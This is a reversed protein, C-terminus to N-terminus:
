KEKITIRSQVPVAAELTKFFEMRAPKLFNNPIILKGTKDNEVEAFWGTDGWVIYVIYTRGRDCDSCDVSASGFLRDGPKLLPNVLSTEFLSQPGSEEHAKIWDATSIPIPLPDNRDPLDINWIAFAWKINRAITSSQNVLILAPSKQYILRLAVDPKEANSHSSETQSGKSDADFGIKKQLGDFLSDLWLAYRDPRFGQDTRRQIVYKMTVGLTYTTTGQIARSSFGAPLQNNMGVGSQVDFDVTFFGVRELRIVCTFVEGKEPNKHESFSIHTGFPMVIPARNWLSRDFPKLFESQSLVKMIDQTPYPVADPPVIPKKDIPTVGVGATWKIGGSVGKHLSYISKFVEFQVLRAVFSFQEDLSDFRREQYPPWGPPPVDPRDALGVLDSYFDEHPDSTIENLLIPANKWEAHFPILTTFRGEKMLPRSIAIPKHSIPNDLVANRLAIYSDHQKSDPKVIGFHDENVPIPPEYCDRTGSLRDVILVTGKVPKKEYACYRRIKFHAARWQNELTLLYNNENGHFLAELLPDSSFWKGLTAIQSGEEPVAFFYIFPVKKAQERFTLLLQQVIIGGLSHCVFVVERHKTFVGNAALRGNLNAVVEDVSLTNGSIPSEYNAVYVDSDDFASDGLLLKPWYTGSRSTWTTDADGFIGHMFVIVRDKYPGNQGVPREYHSIPNSRVVGMLTSTFGCVIIILLCARFALTTQIIKNSKKM